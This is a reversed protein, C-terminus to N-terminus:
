RLANDGYGSESCKKCHSPSRVADDVYCIKKNWKKKQKEYCNEM